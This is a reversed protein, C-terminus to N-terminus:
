EQKTLLMPLPSRPIIKSLMEIQKKALVYCEKYHVKDKMGEELANAVAQDAVSILNLQRISMVDRANPYKQEMLFLGTLEMKSLNMYYMDASKSGQARAYEVFKQIVDTCERRVKKSSQREELWEQNRRLLYMDELLRRQRYFETILKEKFDMVEESNQMLTILYTAQLETLLYVLSLKKPTKKKISELNNFTKRDKHKLLLLIVSRHELNLGVSIEYTDTFVDRGKIIVLQNM